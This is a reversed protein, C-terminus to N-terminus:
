LMGGFKSTFVSLRFFFVLFLLLICSLLSVIFSFSRMGLPLIFVFIRDTVDFHCTLLVNHFVYFLWFFVCHRDFYMSLVFSLFHSSMLCVHTKFSAMHGVPHHRDISRDLTSRDFYFYISRFGKLCLFLLLDIFLMFIFYLCDVFHIPHRGPTSLKVDEALGKL